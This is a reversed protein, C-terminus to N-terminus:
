VTLWDSGRMEAIVDCCMYHSAACSSAPGSPVLQMCEGPMAAQRASSILCQCCACAKPLLLVQLRTKVVDAPHTAWAALAASGASAAAVGWGPLEQPHGLQMVHLHTLTARCSGKWSWSTCSQDSFLASAKHVAQLEGQVVALRAATQPFTLFLRHMVRTDVVTEFARVAIGRMGASAAAPLQGPLPHETAKHPSTSVSLCGLLSNSSRPLCSPVQSQMLQDAM